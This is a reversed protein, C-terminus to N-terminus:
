YPLVNAIRDFYAKLNEIVARELYIKNTEEIGNETTLVVHYGDFKAYVADGLYVKDKTM